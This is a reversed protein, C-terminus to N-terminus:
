HAHTDKGSLRVATRVANEFDQVIVPRREAGELLRKGEDARNGSLRMVVTVRAPIHKLASRVGQAVRDCRVIGGLVHVLLVRLHPRSCVSCISKEIEAEDSLGGLDVFCAPKGGLRHILDMTAMGLGAGNALCAIDGNKDVDAFAAAHGSTRRDHMFASNLREWEPHRFRAADDVTLKADLAIWGSGASLVLPNIECIMADQQMFFRGYSQLFRNWSLVAEAPIGMRHLEQASKDQLTGIGSGTEFRVIGDRCLEVDPGGPSALLLVVAKQTRDMRLCCYLSLDYVIHSEVRINELDPERKFWSRIEQEAEGIHEEQKVLGRKLRQHHLVQAKLWVPGDQFASLAGPRFSRDVIIGDPVAIGADAMLVKADHEIFKM